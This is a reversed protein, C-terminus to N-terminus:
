YMALTVATGRVIGTAGNAHGTAAEVAGVADDAADDVLWGIGNTTVAVIVLVVVAAAADIGDTALPIGCDLTIALPWPMTVDCFRGLFKRVAALAAAAMAVAVPATAIAVSSCGM